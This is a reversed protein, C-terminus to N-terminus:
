IELCPHFIINKKGDKTVGVSDVASRQGNFRTVLIKNEISHVGQQIRGTVRSMCRSTASYFKERIQTDGLSQFVYFCFEEIGNFGENYELFHTNNINVISEEKSSHPQM